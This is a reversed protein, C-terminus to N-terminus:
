SMGRGHNRSSSMAAPGNVGVSSRAAAVPTGAPAGPACVHAPLAVGTCHFGCAKIAQTISEPRTKAEDYSISATTSAANVEISSVGSVRQLKKAIALHDLAGFLGQIEFSKTVM